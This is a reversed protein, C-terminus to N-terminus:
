EAVVQASVIQFRGHQPRFDCWGVLQGARAMLDRVFQPPLLDSALVLVDLEAQWGALLAPRVRAVGARNVQVRRKDLFEATTVPEGNRLCPILGPEVLLGAKVLDMASKRSSRPDQAWRGSTILSGHVGVAPICVQGHENRYYYSEVDDTKKTESGKAAKGKTEVSECDYRHFLIPCTGEVVFRMRYPALVATTGTAFENMDLSHLGAEGKDAVAGNKTGM